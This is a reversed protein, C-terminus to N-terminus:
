YELLLARHTRKMAAHYFEAAQEVNGLDHALMGQRFKLEPDDPFLRLATFCLEWAEDKADLATLSCILLAYAKRVHPENDASYTM